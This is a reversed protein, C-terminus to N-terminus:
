GAPAPRARRRARGAAPALRALAQEVQGAAVHARREADLDDLDRRRAQRHRELRRGGLLDAIEGTTSPCGASPKSTRRMVTSGATTRRRRVRSRPGRCRRLRDGLRHRHGAGRGGDGFDDVDAHRIGGHAQARRLAHADRHVIAGRRACQVARQFSVHGSQKSGIAHAALGAGKREIRRGHAPEARASTRTSRWSPERRRSRRGSRKRAPRSVRSDPVQISCSSAAPMAPSPPQARRAGADHRRRRDGVQRRALAEGGADDDRRRVIRELVVADLHERTGALLEGFRELPLDLRHHGVRRPRDGSAPRRHRRHVVALFVLAVEGLDQGRASRRRPIRIATSQALPAVVVTAGCTKSCRPKSAVNRPTSGSPRLM